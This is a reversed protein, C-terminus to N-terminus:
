KTLEQIKRRDAASQWTLEQVNATLAQMQRESASLHQGSTDGAEMLALSNSDVTRLKEPLSVFHSYVFQEWLRRWSIIHLFWCPRGVIGRESPLGSLLFLLLVVLSCRHPAPWLDESAKTLSKHLIILLYTITNLNTTKWVKHRKTRLNIYTNWFTATSGENIEAKIQSSYPNKHLRNCYRRSITM